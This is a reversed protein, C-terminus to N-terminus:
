NIKYLFLPVYLFIMQARAVYRKDMGDSSICTTLQQRAHKSERFSDVEYALLDCVFGMCKVAM